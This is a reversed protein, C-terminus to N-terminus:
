SSRPHADTTALDDADRALGPLAGRGRGPAAAVRVDGRRCRRPHRRARLRARQRPLRGRVPDVRRAASRGGRRRLMWMTRVRRAGQRRLVADSRLMWVLAFAVSPLIFILLTTSHVTAWKGDIVSRGLLYVFYAVPGIAAPVVANGSRRSPRPSGALQSLSRRRTRQARAARITAQISRRTQYEVVGEPHRAYTIAGLGFFVIFFEPSSCRARGRAAVPLRRLEDGRERCRRGHALRPHRRDRGLGRRHARSPRRSM